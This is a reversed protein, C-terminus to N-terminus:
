SRFGIAMEIAYPIPYAVNKVRIKSGIRIDNVFESFTFKRLWIPM